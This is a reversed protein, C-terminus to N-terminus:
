PSVPAFAYLVVDNGDTTAGTLSNGQYSIKATWKGDM